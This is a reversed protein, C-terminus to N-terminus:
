PLAPGDQDLYQGEFGSLRRLAERDQFVVRSRQFTLLGQKRLEQLVRNVHVASLGLVDALNQQTLPCHYGGPSTLGVLTLRAELELLFHALRERPSRRGISLLREALMAEDRSAAWLVAAGIRPHARIVERLEAASVEAIEVPLLPEFRRDSMRQLVGRLGVFDGPIQVNVIQRRGDPLLKSSCSWGRCLVFLRDVAQSRRVLLAGPAVTRVRRQLAALASLEAPTLAVFAGLKRCLARGSVDLIGGLPVPM